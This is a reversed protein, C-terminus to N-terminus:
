KPQDRFVNAFYKYYWSINIEGGLMYQIVWSPNWVAIPWNLRDSVAIYVYTADNNHM